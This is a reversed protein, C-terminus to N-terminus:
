PGEAVVRKQFEEGMQRYLSRVTATADEGVMTAMSPIVLTRKEAEPTAQLTVTWDIRVNGGGAGQPPVTVKPTFEIMAPAETVQAFDATQQGIHKSLRDTIDEILNRNMTELVGASLYGEPTTPSKEQKTILITILPNGESSAQRVIAALGMALTKDGQQEIRQAIPEHLARLRDMAEKRHRTNRRDLLYFRLDPAQRTKVEEWLGDDREIVALQYSGFMVLGTTLVLAVYPLWFWSTREKRPTPIEKVSQREDDEDSVEIEVLAAYGREAASGGTIDVLANLYEELKRAKSMSKLSLSVNGDALTLGVTTNKYNGNEDHHHEHVAGVIMEIPTVWVGTGTGTWIHLPDVYIFCGLYDSRNRALFSRIAMVIMWGGLMFGGTMLMATALPAGTSGATLMYTVTMVIPGCIIGWWPYSAAWVRAESADFYIGPMGRGERGVVKQLYDITDSDLEEAEFRQEM